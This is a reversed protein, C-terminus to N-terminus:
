EDHSECSDGDVVVEANAEILNTGTVSEMKQIMELLAADDEGEMQNELLNESEVTRTVTGVHTKHIDTIVKAYNLALNALKMAEPDGDKVSKVNVAEMVKVGKQILTEIAKSERLIREIDECGDIKKIQGGVTTRKSM